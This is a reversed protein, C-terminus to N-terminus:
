KKAKYVTTIGFTLPRFITDTFKAKELEKLFAYGAPFSKISNPLYTYASKDRSVLKGALPLLTTSYLNYFQKIPFKKPQSFELIILTGGPKLVRWIESLGNQLNEFNRVGFAVTAADFHRDAFPLTESNAQILQIHNELDLNRIKERGVALMKSSIDIGIVKNPRLKMCSIAFDATGTAIDLIYKPRENSLMSVAIKRWKKDIGFSLLRNLFDYKPAINNFMVEIQENKSKQSFKYPTVPKL